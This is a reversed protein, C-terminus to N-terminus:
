NQISLLKLGIEESYKKELRSDLKTLVIECAASVVGRVLHGAIAEFKDNSLTAHVHVLPKGDCLFANGTLNAVELPGGFERTLYEKNAVNYVGLEAGSFAGIGSLVMNEIGELALFEDLKAMVEDGPEMTIVYTADNTKLYKM